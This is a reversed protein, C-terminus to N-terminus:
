RQRKGEQVKGLSTRWDVFVISQWSISVDKKNRPQKSCTRASTHRSTKRRHSPSWSSASCKGVKSCARALSDCSKYDIMLMSLTIVFANPNGSLQKMVQCYTEDRLEGHTLGETLLWREEELLASAPGTVLSTTSANMAVLTSGHHESGIRVGAPRERERDGMIHQIVKFIRLANKHLSRNLMLLPSSLPTKQYTMLESLPVKRRFIFGTRHISFYQKAFHSEAFQQIDSALDHPLVPYKGTNLSFTSTSTMRKYIDVPIPRAADPNEMPSLSLTAEADYIPSSIVKGHLSVPTPGSVSRGSVHPLSPMPRRPSPLMSAKDKKKGKPLMPSAPATASGNMVPDTSVRLRPQDTFSREGHGNDSSTARHKETSASSQSSSLAIMELAATLSQPQPSKYSLYSSSKSRSRGITLDDAMSKRRPPSDKEKAKKTPLQQDNLSLMSKQSSPSPPPSADTAYPSGPIPALPHGRPYSLPGGSTNSSSRLHESSTTSKRSLQQKKSSSPSTTNSQSAKVSFNRTTSQSRRSQVNNEPSQSSSEKDNTYSHSRRYHVREPTTSQPAPPEYQSTRRFSLRRGLATNQLVGLPIVFAHPREWVTEGSKTHYYYPLGSTEDFMEWWEGDPSPPLLFNGIPPDWSVEGTAPCAFFSVQTQPDVLTVWFNSGWGDNGGPGGGTTSTSHSPLSSAPRGNLHVEPTPPSGDSAPSDSQPSAKVNSVGSLRCHDRDSDIANLSNPEVSGPNDTAPAASM